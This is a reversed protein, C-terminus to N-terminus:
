DAALALGNKLIATSVLEAVQRAGSENLHVDDYFVSTDKPLTAALDVCLLDHEDCRDLLVDNYAQLGSALAGVSYYESGAEYMFNGIGGFWLLKQLEPELDSKFLSPQTLLMVQVRNERATAIMTDVNRAYEDLASSLDPLEDRFAPAAQRFSRWRDYILGTADQENDDLGSELVTKKLHRLQQWIALRQLFPLEPQGPPILAFSRYFLKERYSESEKALPVFTEGHLLRLAFDNIGIMLILLDIDPYQELLKEVQLMHNRTNHGSRGVNGVRVTNAGLKENLLDELLRPWAERDDLYLCETTSGGVAVIRIRAEDSWETGRMGFSNVTFASPGSVGPMIDPRPAFQQNLGPPLVYFRTPVFQRLVFEALVVALCFSTVVLLGAFTRQSFEKQPM